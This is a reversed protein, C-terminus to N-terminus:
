NEHSSKINKQFNDIYRKGQKSISIVKHITQETKNVIIPVEHIVNKAHNLIETVLVDSNCTPPNASNREMSEKIAKTVASESIGSDSQQTGKSESHNLPSFKSFSKNNNNLQESDDVVM